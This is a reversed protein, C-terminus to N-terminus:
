RLACRAACDARVRRRASVRRATRTSGRTTTVLPCEARDLTPTTGAPVRSASGPARDEHALGRRPAVSGSPPRLLPSRTAAFRPAQSLRVTDTTGTQGGGVLIVRRARRGFVATEARRIRDVRLM